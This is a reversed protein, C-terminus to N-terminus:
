FRILVMGGHSAGGARRNAQLRDGGGSMDRGKRGSDDHPSRGSSRGGGGAARSDEGPVVAKQTGAADRRQKVRAWPQAQATPPSTSEAATAPKGHPQSADDDWEAECYNREVRGRRAVRERGREETRTHPSAVAPPSRCTEAPGRTAAIRPGEECEGGGAQEEGAGNPETRHQEAAAASLVGDPAAAEDVDAFSFADISASPSEVRRGGGDDWGTARRPICAEEQALHDPPTPRALAPREVRASDAHGEWSRLLDLIGNRGHMHSCVALMRLQKPKSATPPAPM